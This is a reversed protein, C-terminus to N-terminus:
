KFLHARIIEYPDVGALIFLATHLNFLGHALIPVAIRGTREYAVSQVLGFIFLPLSVVLNLHAASFILAPLIFALPRALRGRAFRFIGMRFVLEETVPALVAAVVLTMVIQVTSRAQTFLDVADQSKVEFGSWQLVQPWVLAIPSILAVMIAFTTFGAFPVRSLALPPPTPAAPTTSANLRAHFRNSKLLAWATILGMLLSLQFAISQFLLHPNSPSVKPGFEKAFFICAIAVGLVRILSLAYVYGPIDWLPLARMQQARVRASPRLACLWLLALGTLFLAAEATSAVITKDPM